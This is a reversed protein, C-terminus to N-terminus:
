HSFLGIDFGPCTHCVSFDDAGLKLRIFVGTFRKEYFMSGQPNTQKEDNGRGSDIPLGSMMFKDIEVIIFVNSFINVQLLSEGAFAEGPGKGGGM